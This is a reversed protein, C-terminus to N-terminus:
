YYFKFILKVKGFNEGVIYGNDFRIWEDLRLLLLGPITREVVDRWLSRNKTNKVTAKRRNRTGAPARFRRLWKDLEPPCDIYGLM